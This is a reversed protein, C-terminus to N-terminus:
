NKMGSATAQKEEEAKKELNRKWYYHSDAARCWLLKSLEDLEQSAPDENLPTLIEGPELPSTTAAKAEFTRKLSSYWSTAM